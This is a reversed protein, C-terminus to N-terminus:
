DSPEGDSSSGELGLKDELKAIEKNLNRLTKNKNKDDTYEELLIDKKACLQMYFDFNSRHDREDDRINNRARHEEDRINTRARHEEDRINSEARQQAADKSFELMAAAVKSTEKMQNLLENHMKNPTKATGAGGDTPDETSECKIGEELFISFVADVEPHAKCHMVFYYLEIPNLGSVKSTKLAPEIFNWTDSDHTGSLTMNTVVGKRAKTLKHIVKAVSQWSQVTFDKPNVGDDDVAATIHEDGPNNPLILEDLETSDTDNVMESLKRFLRENNAGNGTEFDRRDKRDNIKSFDPLIENTFLATVIRCNTNTKRTQEVQPDSVPNVIQNNAYAAGMTVRLAMARRIKFLNASGIGKCGFNKALTRIQFVGLEKLDFTHSDTVHIFQAVLFPGQKEPDKKKEDIEDGCVLRKRDAFEFNKLFPPLEAISTTRKKKPDDSYNKKNSATTKNSASIPRGETTTAAAAVGESIIAEDDESLIAEQLYKKYKAYFGVFETDRADITATGENNKHRKATTLKTRYLILEQRLTEERPSIGKEYYATIPTFSKGNEEVCHKCTYSDAGGEFWGNGVGCACGHMYGHCLTCCHQKDVLTGPQTCLSRACCSETPAM